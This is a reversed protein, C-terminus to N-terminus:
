EEPQAPPVDELSVLVRDIRRGDMDVVEFRYGRLTFTEGVAPVRDLHALVLGALTNFSGSVPAERWGLLAMTEDVPLGGDLLWSGDERLVIEPETQEGQDPLEGVISELIDESSILGQLSGYEDVVLAVHITQAKLLELVRVASTSEPVVLPERLGARIDLPQGDLCQGFLDRVQVIGQVCPWRGPWWPPSRRLTAGVLTIGIQVTSLFRGPEEALRLAQAAGPHGEEALVQLRVKRSSVVALESMAFFGNLLILLVVTAVDWFAM